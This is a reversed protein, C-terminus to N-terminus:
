CFLESIKWGVYRLGGCRGVRVTIVYATVTAHVGHVLDVVLRGHRRHVLVVSVIRWTDAIRAESTAARTQTRKLDPVGRLREHWGVAWGARTHESALTATHRENIIMLNIDVVRIYTIVLMLSLLGEHIPPDSLKDLSRPPPPNYHMNCGGGGGGM